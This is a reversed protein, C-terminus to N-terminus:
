VGIGRALELLDGLLKDLLDVKGTADAARLSVISRLEPAAEEHEAAAAAERALWLSSLEAYHESLAEAVHFASAYPSEVNAASLRAIEQHAAEREAPTM